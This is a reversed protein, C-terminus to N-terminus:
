NIESKPPPEPVIDLEGLPGEWGCKSCEVLARLDPSVDPQYQFGEAHCAPCFLRVNISLGIKTGTM